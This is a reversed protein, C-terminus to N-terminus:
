RRWGYFHVTMFYRRFTLRAAKSSAAEIRSSATDAAVAVAAVVPDPVAADPV